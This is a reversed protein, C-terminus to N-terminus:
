KNPANNLVETEVYQQFATVRGNRLIVLTTEDMDVNKENAVIGIINNTQVRKFEDNHGQNFVSLLALEIDLIGFIYFTYLGRFAEMGEANEHTMILTTNSSLQNASVFELNRNPFIERMSYTYDENNKKTKNESCSTFIFAILLSIIFTFNKM